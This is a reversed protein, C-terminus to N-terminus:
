AAEGGVPGYFVVWAAFDASFNEFRHEAHAPVFLADGAAFGTREGAVVFEGSGSAVFYVEDRDHPAQPDRVFPAYLEVVLTGHSFAEVFREGEPWKPTCPGPLRRLLEPLSAKLM